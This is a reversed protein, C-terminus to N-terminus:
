NPSDELCPAEDMADLGGRSLGRRCGLARSAERPDMLTSGAFTASSLITALSDFLQPSGSYEFM